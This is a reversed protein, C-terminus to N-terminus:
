TGDRPAKGLVTVKGFSYVYTAVSSLIMANYLFPQWAFPVTKALAGVTGLLFAIVPCWRKVAPKGKFAGKIVSTLAVIAGVMAMDVLASLDIM